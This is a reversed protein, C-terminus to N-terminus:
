VSKRDGNKVSACPNAFINGVKKRVFVKGNLPPETEFVTFVSLQPCKDPNLFSQGADRLRQGAHLFYKELKPFTKRVKLFPKKLNRSSKTRDALEPWPRSIM